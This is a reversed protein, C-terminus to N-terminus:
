RVGETWSMLPFSPRVQLLPVLVLASLWVSLKKGFLIALRSDSIFFIDGTCVHLSLCHSFYYFCLLLFTWFTGCDCAAAKGSLLLSLFCVSGFLCLDFFRVFLELITKKKGLSTIAIRFPSVFM